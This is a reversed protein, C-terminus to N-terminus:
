EEDLQSKRVKRGDPMRYWGGGIHIPTEEEEVEEEEVEEEEVEEEEVEEEEVEEEQKKPEEEPEVKKGWETRVPIPKPDPFRKGLFGLSRLQDALFENDTEFIGGRRYRKNSPKLKFRRKVEFKM